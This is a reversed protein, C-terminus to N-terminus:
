NHYFLFFFQYFVGNVVLECIVNPLHIFELFNFIKNELSAFFNFMLSSPYNAGSITIYFIVFLMLLM